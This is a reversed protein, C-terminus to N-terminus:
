RSPPPLGPVGIESGSLKWPGPAHTGEPGWLSHPSPVLLTGKGTQTLKLPLTPVSVSDHM